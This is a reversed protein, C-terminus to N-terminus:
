QILLQIPVTSAQVNGNQSEVKITVPTATPKANPDTPDLNNTLQVTYFDSGPDDTRFTDWSLEGASAKASITSGPVIPNGNIDHLVISITASEGPHLVTRDTTVTFTTIDGSFVVNCVAWVRASNGNADVGETVALVRAIGNNENGDLDFDPVPGPIVTHLNPDFFTNYYREVTPYPQGTHLTVTAVGEEDTYGTYTSIVGGTTTFYVATGPPVPNNYKDGVVAVIQVTNNVVHWGYVNVPKAGVTLHSTSADNVDEIYPPGAFILFETATSSVEPTLPQGLSDTVVARVRVAGSRIGSTFSVEAKGNVTPVPETTSLTEGGGPSAVIEFRVYTGDAVANNRSDRVDATIRLTQNRGSDKVGVSKPDCSILVSNPPGPRLVVTTEGSVGGAKAVITAVGTQSGSFQAQAVGNQTQARETIHGLDAEFTVVTGDAVPNGAADYVYARVRTVTVGDAPLSSSDAVVSISAPGGAVYRITVTDSLAGVSARVVALGPKTDSVLKTTAVGGTTQQYSDLRGKGELLEFRVTTGDPVPNRSSDSVTATIESTSTGDAQLVAPRAQLTLYTPKSEGLYIRVTDRLANGVTGVVTAWGTQTGARLKVAATGSADTKVRAPITGLDTAFVVTLDPVAVYSTTEKVVATVVSESTGNAVLRTPNASIEFLLGRFEVTVTDKLGVAQAVVTATLDQHSAESLLEVAAEGSSDTFVYAPELEGHDTSLSVPEGRRPQLDSGRLQIHLTAVSVGDALISRPEATLHFLAAGVTDIKVSATAQCDDGCRATITVQGVQAPATYLALGQGLSDSVLEPPEVQGTTASLRVTAGSVPSDDADTVFVRVQAQDGPALVDPSVTVVIKAAKASAKDGSDELPSKRSCFVLSAALFLLGATTIKRITM